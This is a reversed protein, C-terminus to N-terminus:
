GYGFLCDDSPILSANEIVLFDRKSNATPIKIIIPNPIKTNNTNKILNDATDYVMQENEETPKDAIRTGEALLAIPKADKAKQIFEETM